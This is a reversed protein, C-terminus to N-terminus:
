RSFFLLSAASAALFLFSYRLLFFAILLFVSAFIVEFILLGTDELQELDEIQKLIGYGYLLIFGWHIVKALLTHSESM